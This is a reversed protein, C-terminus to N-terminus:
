TLVFDIETTLTDTSTMREMMEEGDITTLLLFVPTMPVDYEIFIQASRDAIIPFSLNYREM